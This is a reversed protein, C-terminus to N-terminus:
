INVYVIWYRWLATLCCLRESAVSANRCVQTMESTEDDDDYARQDDDTVDISRARAENQRYAPPLLWSTTLVPYGVAICDLRLTDTVAVQTDGDFMALIRPRCPALSGDAVDIVEEANSTKPQRSIWSSNVLMQSDGLQNSASSSVQDVARGTNHQLLASNAQKTEIDNQRNDSNNLKRGRGSTTSSSLSIATSTRRHKLADSGPPTQTSRCFSDDVLIDFNDLLSRNASTPESDNGSVSRLLWSTSCDCVLPNSSVDLRRLGTLSQVVEREFVELRNNSLNFLALSAVSEFADRDVYRLHHCQSVDLTRLSTMNVFSNREILKLRDLRSLRLRELRTFNWFSGTEIIDFENGSLDLGTVGIDLVTLRRIAALPLMILANENLRLDELNSLGDFAHEAIYRIRNFGLDIDRVPPSKTIFPSQTTSSTFPAHHTQRCDFFSDHIVHFGNRSLNLREISPLCCIWRLTTLDVNMGLRNASIDLELLEGLGFFADHNISEIRNFSLDLRRITTVRIFVRDAVMSLLNHSLDLTKLTEPAALGNLSQLRAGNVALENLAPCDRLLITALSLLDVPYGTM